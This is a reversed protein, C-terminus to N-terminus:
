ENGTSSNSYFKSVFDEPVTRVVSGSICVVYVGSRSVNHNCACTSILAHLGCRKRDPFGCVRKLYLRDSFGGASLLRQLACLFDCYFYEPLLAFDSVFEAFSRFLCLDFHCGFALHGDRLVAWFPLVFDSHIRGSVVVILCAPFYHSHFHLLFFVRLSFCRQSMPESTNKICLCCCAFRKFITLKATINYVTHNLFAFCLSKLIRPIIPLFM